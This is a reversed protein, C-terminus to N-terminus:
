GSASAFGELFNAVNIGLMDLNYGGEMTIVTPLGLAGIMEGARLFDESELQFHCTPNPEDKYTDVGLAIVVTEAGFERIADLAMGLAGSWRDFACGPQLPLNINLGEGKGRGKEEAAGTYFPYATQPDAHISCTLVQDSEYFIEQTGNGHHYDLDLVAVRQSTQRSLQAAAIAANNLFCSGAMIDPGAHHGPPRCLAFVAQDGSAVCAAATTACYSSYLIAEWSGEVLCVGPDRAYYDVMNEVGLGPRMGAPRMRWFSPVIPGSRGTETWLRWASSLFDVYEPSHVALIPALGSEVPPSVDGLRRATVERLIASAREPVESVAVFTAGVPEVRDKHGFHRDSYVIRM